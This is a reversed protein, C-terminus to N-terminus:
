LRLTLGKFYLTSKSSSNVFHAFIPLGGLLVRYDCPCVFVCLVWKEFVNQAGLSDMLMSFHKEEEEVDEKVLNEEWQTQYLVETPSKCSTKEGMREEVSIKKGFLFEGVYFVLLKLACDFRWVGDLPM